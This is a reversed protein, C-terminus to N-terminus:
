SLFSTVTLKGEVAGEVLVFSPSVFCVVDDVLPAALIKGPHHLSREHHDTPRGEEDETFFDCFLIHLKHFRYKTEYDELSHVDIM